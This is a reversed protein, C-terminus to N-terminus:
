PSNIQGHKIKRIFTIGSIKGAIYQGMSKGERKVDSIVLPYNLVINQFELIDKARLKSNESYIVEFLNKGIYKVNILRNPEYGFQILEGKKLKQAVLQEIEIFDSTDTHSLSSLLEEWSEYGLYSSIVDMTYLRPENIGKIFGYLRKLTSASVSTKTINSIQAALGECDKPYRISQGFKKEIRKKIIESLM